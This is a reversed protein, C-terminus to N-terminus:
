SIKQVDLDDKCDQLLQLVTKKEVTHVLTPAIEALPILAFKREALHPHPLKLLDSNKIIGDIILIDIDIVRPGMKVIRERGLEKEIALLSKMLDEPDLNTEIALAQNIFDPQEKLGWAATKYYSSAAKIVGCKEEIWTAAKQLYNISNGLNSGTLLYAKYTTNGKM